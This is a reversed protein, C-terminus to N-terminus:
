KKEPEGKHQLRQNRYHTGAIYSIVILCSAVLFVSFPSSEVIAYVYIILGIPMLTWAAIESIKSKTVERRKEEEPSTGHEEEMNELTRKWLYIFLIIIGGVLLWWWIPPVPLEWISM